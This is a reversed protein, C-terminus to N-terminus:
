VDRSDRRRRHARPMDIVPSAMEIIKEHSPPYRGGMSLGISTRTKKTQVAILTAASAPMRILFMDVLYSAERCQLHGYMAAFFRALRNLEETRDEPKILTIAFWVGGGNVYSNDM